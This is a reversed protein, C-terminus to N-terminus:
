RIQRGPTRERWSRFGTIVPTRIESSRVGAAPYWWDPWNEFLTPAQARGPAGAIEYSRTVARVVVTTWNFRDIIQRVRRLRATTRMWQIKKGVTAFSYLADEYFDRLGPRHLRRARV